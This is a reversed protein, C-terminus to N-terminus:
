QRAHVLDGKPILDAQRDAAVDLWGQFFGTQLFASWTKVWFRVSHAEQRIAQAVKNLLRPPIVALVAPFERCRFQQQWGDGSLRAHEYFDIKNPWHTSGRDMEVFYATTIGKPQLSLASDPRVLEEGAQSRIAAAQENHWAIDGRMQRAALKARVYVESVQLDHMLLLNGRYIDYRESLGLANRTIGRRIALIEEGVSGLSYVHCPELGAARMRDMLDATYNLVHREYLKRIREATTFPHGDPKFFLRQIQHRSLLGIGLLTELLAEDRPTFCASNLMQRASQRIGGNLLERKKRRGGTPSRRGGKFSDNYDDPVNVIFGRHRHAEM